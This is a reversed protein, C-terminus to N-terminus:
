ESVLKGIRDYLDTLEGVYKRSEEIFVPELDLSVVIEKLFRNEEDAYDNDACALAVLEFIVKKKVATSATKFVDVAQEVQGQPEELNTVLAMELKYQEMMSVEEDSLVGDAAILARALDLFAIKQKEALNTLFM